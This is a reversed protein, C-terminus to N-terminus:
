GSGAPDAEILDNLHQLARLLEHRVERAFPNERQITFFLEISDHEVNHELHLMSDYALTSLASEPPDLRKFAWGMLHTLGQVYAMQQDHEEPSVDCVRLRLTDELFRRLRALRPADIRGPCLAIKLGQVGRAGSQPGFLPHSGVFDVHEPLHVRMLELPRVKVSSVDIVLTGPKLHPALRELLSPLAAVPVALVVRGCGAAQELTVAQWDHRRATASVDRRDHVLLEFHEALHQAMFSGFSGLGVVALQPRGGAGATSV